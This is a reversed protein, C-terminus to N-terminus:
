MTGEMSLVPTSHELIDATVTTEIDKIWVDACQKATVEGNASNLTVPEKLYRVNKRKEGTLFDRSILHESAGSGVIFSRDMLTGAAVANAMNRLM